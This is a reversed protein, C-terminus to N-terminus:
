SKNKNIQCEYIALYKVPEIINYSYLNQIKFKSPLYANDWIDSYSIANKFSLDLNTVKCIINLLNNELINASNNNSYFFHHETMKCFESHSSFVFYKEEIPIEKINFTNLLTQENIKTEVAFSDVSELEFKVGISGKSINPYSIYQNEKIENNFQINILETIDEGTRTNIYKPIYLKRDENQSIYSSDYGVM